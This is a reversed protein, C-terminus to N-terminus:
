KMVKVEEIKEGKVTVNCSDGGRKAVMVKNKGWNMKMQWKAIVDDLIQLHQVIHHCLAHYIIEICLNVSAKSIDCSIVSTLCLNYGTLCTLNLRNYGIFNLWSCTPHHQHM